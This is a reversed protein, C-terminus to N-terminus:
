KQQWLKLKNERWERIEKTLHTSKIYRNGELTEWISHPGWRGVLKDNKTPLMEDLTKSM